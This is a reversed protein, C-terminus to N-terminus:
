RQRVRLDAGIEEVITPLQTPVPTDGNGLLRHGVVGGSHALVVGQVRGGVVAEECVEGMEALGALKRPAVLLEADGHQPAHHSGLCGYWRCHHPDEDIPEHM